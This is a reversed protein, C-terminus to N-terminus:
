QAEALVAFGEAEFAARAEPGSLHAFFADAAASDRGAVRAAPYRIPPHSGEPFTGIATVRHEAAADTAYVIGLPAEGLAVLALAARVNDAQAVRPAVENWLGLRELAARGYIGAPVAEVLAMALRGEGLMAALDMSPGITVPAADGHAVLVLRNGLLDLRSAPDILGASALHDMWDPHASIFIDAPAAREIQRALASSGAFSLTVEHGTEAEFGASIRDLATKTSAAAFVTVQGALAMGPLLSVALAVPAILRRLHLM